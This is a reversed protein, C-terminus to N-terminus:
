YYPRFWVKQKCKTCEWRATEGETVLTKGGIHTTYGKFPDLIEIGTHGALYSGYNFYKSDKGCIPCRAKEGSKVWVVM